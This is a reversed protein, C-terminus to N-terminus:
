RWSPWPQDGRRRDIGADGGQEVAGLQVVREDVVADGDVGGGQTLPDQGAEGRDQVLGRQLDGLDVGGDAAPSAAQVGLLHPKEEGLHLM